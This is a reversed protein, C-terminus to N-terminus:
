KRRRRAGAYIGVLGMGMLIITTPEPVGGDLLDNNCSMSFLMDGGYQFGGFYNLDIEGEILYTDFGNEMIGTSFYSFTTSGLLTGTNNLHDIENQGRSGFGRHADFYGMTPNLWLGGAGVGTYGGVDVVYNQGNVNFQIDASHFIYSGWWSVTNGFDPMSTVISYKYMGGSIDAYIAEIDFLESVVYQPGPDPANGDPLWNDHVGYGKTPVWSNIFQGAHGNWEGVELNIGFYDDLLWANSNSTFGFAFILAATILIINRM